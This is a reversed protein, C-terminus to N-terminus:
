TAPRVLVLGGPLGRVAVADGDINVTVRSGALPIDTLQLRTAGAPLVPDLVIRGSPVDPELGLLARVLLLPAASSWAQPSCSAPYPVPTPFEAADLGAFLEPLRGGLAAVAGLLGGAVRLAGTAFGARRLGAACIATDHPWVSGNHYSLPNYRSMSRALTRVGWGSLLEPSILRQAVAAAKDPDNIVGAWLCHGVNSAVADVRRKDRDLALAFTGRDPMWFDRDFAAALEDARGDRLVATERDGDAHALAAGARWAAYAYAQVEALAIPAEPLRGDAFAVGDFSDKWGQNALSQPTRARYEVYGDGDPDGPGAIWDLAADVAGLLPRVEAFPIGWRWLEHVLMVFLPTADASGYYVDGDALALSPGRSFRVEHLIRGPQEETKPVDARGQLRALARATALAFTPDIVLAMWSTLISDRGFLTMFWPAGAALLPDTPHDPDFLRLGGLDEAARDFSLQLGPVDSALKPLRRVWGSPRTSPHALQPPQGCRYRPTIQACGRLAALELCTLWEQGPALDATWHLTGDPTSEAGRGGHVVLGRRGDDVSFRMTTSEASCPASRRRTRGEKVAFLDALDAEVSIRVVATLPEPFLNRIRLDLRMGRGIWLDRFVLLRHDRSRGVFSSASPARTTTTLAEVPYGDITVALRSCVRTDGVFLGQVGGPHIDGGPDCIAFSAGDVLTVTAAPVPASEGGFAWRETSSV